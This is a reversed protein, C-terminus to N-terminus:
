TKSERRDKQEQYRALERLRQKLVEMHHTKEPSPPQSRILLWVAYSAGLASEPTHDLASMRQCFQEKTLAGRRMLKYIAEGVLEPKSLRDRATAM